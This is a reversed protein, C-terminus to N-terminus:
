TLYGHTNCRTSDRDDLDTRPLVSSVVLAGGQLATVRCRKTVAFRSTSQIVFRLRAVASWPPAGTTDKRGKGKARVREKEVVQFALRHALANEAAKNNNLRRRHVAATNLEIKSNSEFERRAAQPQISPASQRNPQASFKPKEPKASGREIRRMEPQARRVEPVKREVSPNAVRAGEAHRMQGPNIREVRQAQEARKMEQRLSRDTALGREETRIDRQREPMLRAGHKDPREDKVNFKKDKVRESVTAVGLRQNFDRRFPPAVPLDSVLVQTQDLKKAIGPPLDKKGRGWASHLVANRLPTLTLPDLVARTGEFDRTDWRRIRQYDYDRTFDDIPMVAVAGPVGLNIVHQQLIDHRSLYHPNWSEDYYRAVYPDGPALPVWGIEDQASTPIFAVLAPSYTPVTNVGDPIWYWRNGVSAWRGYHYPAYGWPENSVWTPGYPYDNIWYGQQYPAWGTDVRPTWGYGYGNLNQWNGYYDLDNLGPIYPSAYQYSLNRRYPDFYYPDNLYSNYDIYRGDYYQPYQYRYYDDVLYGANGGDVRSLVVDAATQGLLTLMEGKSIQGSTGLGVMQALGSLVSVMVSGNDIGVDYLGPQNLDVAGYPTAVEFVQGPDLYGVDFM